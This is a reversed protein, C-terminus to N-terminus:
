KASSVPKISSLVEIIIENDAKKKYEENVYFSGQVRYTILMNLAVDDKRDPHLLFVSEKIREEIRKPLISFQNGSFLIEILTLNAMFADFLERTFEATNELIYEPHAINGFVSEIVENQMASSLDYVDQYHLYFTAKSIQAENTLEKVTIKELPKHSRLKIFANRIATLTKRTRLDM